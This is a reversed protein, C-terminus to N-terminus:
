FVQVGSKQVCVHESLDHVISFVDVCVLIVLSTSCTFRALLNGLM